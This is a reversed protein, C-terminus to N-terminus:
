AGGATIGTVDYGFTYTGLALAQNCFLDFSVGTSPTAYPNVVALGVGSTQNTLRIIPSAAGYSVNFTLTAIRTNAALAGAMVVAITGVSDNGTATVSTVNAGKNTAVPASANAIILHNGTTFAFIESGASAQTTGGPDLRLSLRQGAANPLVLVMAGSQTGLAVRGGPGAGSYLALKDGNVGTVDIAPSNLNGLLGSLNLPGQLFENGFSDSSVNAFVVDGYSASSLLSTNVTINTLVNLAVLNNLRNGVPSTADYGIGSGTHVNNLRNIIVQSGTGCAYNGGILHNRSKCGIMTIQSITGVGTMTFDAYNGASDKWSCGMVIADGGASGFNDYHLGGFAVDPQGVGDFVCNTLMVGQTPQFMFSAPRYFRVRSFEHYQGTPAVPSPPSFANTYPWAPAFLAGGSSSPQPLAGGGVGLYNGDLTLDAMVVQAQIVNQYGILGSFTNPGGSIISTAMGAGMLLLPTSATTFGGARSGPAPIIGPDTLYQGGYSDHALFVGGGKTLAQNSAAQLLLQNDTGINAVANTVGITASANLTCQTASQVSSITAVFVAGNTGASVAGNIDVRRNVDAQTFQAQAASTLITPTGINITADTIWRNDGKCGFTSAHWVQGGFDWQAGAAVGGPTATAAVPFSGGTGPLNATYPPSGASVTLSGAAINGSSDVLVGNQGIEVSTATDGGLELVGAGTTDIGTEGPAVLLNGVTLTGSITTNAPAQLASPVNVITGLATSQYPGVSGVTVDYTGAPTQVTYVTNAPAINGNPVLSFQWYGNGDTTTQQQTTTLVTLPSITTIPSPANLTVIIREGSLAAGADNLLYDFLVATAVTQPTSPM